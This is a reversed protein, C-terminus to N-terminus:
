RCRRAAEAEIAAMELATPPEPMRYEWVPGRGLGRDRRACVIRYGFHRLESVCTGAAVTRAKEQLDLTTHRRGDALVRLVRLLRPSTEPRAHHM